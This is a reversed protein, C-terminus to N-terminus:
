LRHKENEADIKAQNLEEVKEKFRTSAVSLERNAALLKEKSALLEDNTKKLQGVISRLKRRTAKLELDLKQAVSSPKSPPRRKAAAAKIERKKTKIDGM